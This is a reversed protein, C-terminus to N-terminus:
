KQQQQATLYEISTEMKGLSVKMSTLTQYVETITLAIQHSEKKLENLNEQTSEITKELVANATEVNGIRQGLKSISAKQDKYIFMFITFACGIAYMVIDKMVDMM